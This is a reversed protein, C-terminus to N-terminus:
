GHLVRHGNGPFFIMDTIFSIGVGLFQGLILGIFFPSAKRYLEIGGFRMILSKAAWGIFVSFVQRRIMWISAVTLGIPHLPWWPFRYQFFTLVSMAAAGAGFYTLKKADTEVPTKIKAAIYDFSHVGAGSSVRYIWSNFNSAGQDYAMHIINVTSVTLGIAVALAIALCLGRRSIRMSDQLKAAHAAGVMFISQVDGFFSYTLGLTALGPATIVGTGFTTVTMAQSVIPTTIYYIGAQIVLRTIGLYAILVGALFFAAVLFPMGAEHLWALMYAFGLVLGIVSTRYTLLEGSDDLGGRPNWAKRCVGSIHGRGMWLGWLVMVVFAGWSQWSTSPFSWVFADTEVVGLGFRNFIGEEIFILLYFLWISFSVNLNVFYIFGIVPLYLYIHLAPFGHAVQVPYFWEIKPVFHFFYGVINWSILSVPIAAGIWFLKDRMVAPVRSDRDAEAVLAQPVQMLPFSLREREVWQKRMIVVLTFCVFFLTAIFSMWWFLPMVWANLLTVWPMSEGYPLGEFFWTMAFAENGPLLWAPMHPVLLSGWQNEASAFYYPTTPIALLYGVLFVPVGIIVLGMVLVTILEAPRMGWGPNITKLLINFLILCFFPFGVGSPFFSWTIESAGLTWIAYSGGVSLLVVLGCGLLLSRWTLGGTSESTEGAM